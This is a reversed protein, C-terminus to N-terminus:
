ARAALDRRRPGEGPRPEGEQTGAADGGTRREREALLLRLYEVAETAEEETLQDVLQHLDAKVTM